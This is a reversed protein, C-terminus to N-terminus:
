MYIYIDRERERERVRERERTYTCVLFGFISGYSLRGFGEDLTRVM